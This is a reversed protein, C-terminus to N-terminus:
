SSHALSDGHKALVQPFHRKIQDIALRALEQQPGYDDYTREFGPLTFSVDILANSLAEMSAQLM